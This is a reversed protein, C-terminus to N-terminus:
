KLTARFKGAKKGALPRNLKTHEPLFCFESRYGGADAGDTYVHACVPAPGPCLEETTSCPFTPGLLDQAKLVATLKPKGAEGGLLKVTRVPGAPNSYGYGKPAGEKGIRKWAPKGNPKTQSAPVVVNAVIEGRGDVACLNFSLDAAPDTFDGFDSASQSSVGKVASVKVLDVKGAAADVVVQTVKGYELGPAGIEDLAGHSCGTASDCSDVTCADGDGCDIAGTPVCSGSSCESTSCADGDDCPNGDNPGPVLECTGEVCGATTCPNDDEECTIATGACVGAQCRESVTCKDDDDCFEGEFIPNEVCAGDVCDWQVCENTNALNEELCPNTTGSCAGGQCRDDITCFDGDDCPTGDAGCGTGALAPAGFVSLLAFAVLPVRWARPRSHLLTQFYNM